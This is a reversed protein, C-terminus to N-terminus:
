PIDKCAKSKDDYFYIKWEYKEPPPSVNENVFLVYKCVVNQRSEDFRINADLYSVLIYKEDKAKEAVAYGLKQANELTFGGPIISETKRVAM